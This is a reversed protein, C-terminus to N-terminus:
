TKFVSIYCTGEIDGLIPGNVLLNESHLTINATKKYLDDVMIDISHNKAEVEFCPNNFICVGKFQNCKM